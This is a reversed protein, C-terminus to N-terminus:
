MARFDLVYVPKTMRREVRFLSLSAESRIANGAQFHRPMETKVEV